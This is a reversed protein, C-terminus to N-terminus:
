TEGSFCELRAVHWLCRMRRSKIVRVINPSAQLDNLEENHLKRREGTVVDRKSGFIRRQVRNKFVRLRGEERLTPSWNEYGYLVVPLIITREKKINLTKSLLRSSCINQM